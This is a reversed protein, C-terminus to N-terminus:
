RKPQSHSELGIGNLAMPPRNPLKVMVTLEGGLAKVYNQLTSLKMDLRTELRSVNEQGIELRAALEAQTLGLAQRLTQLSHEEAILEDARAKIAAQREAPLANIHDNLTKM